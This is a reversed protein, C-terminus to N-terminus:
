GRVGPEQTAPIVPGHWLGWSMKKSEQVKKKM